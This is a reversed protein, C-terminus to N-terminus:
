GRDPPTKRPKPGAGQGPRSAEWERWEAEREPLWGPTRAGTQSDPEPCPLDKAYRRRWSSVTAGTVGFWAGVEDMSLYRIM